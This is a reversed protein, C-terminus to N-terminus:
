NNHDDLHPPKLEWLLDNGWKHVHKQVGTSLVKVHMLTAVAKPLVSDPYVIEKFFSNKGAFNVNGIWLVAQTIEFPSLVLFNLGNIFFDIRQNEYAFM